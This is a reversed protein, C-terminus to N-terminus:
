KRQVFNWFTSRQVVGTKVEPYYASFSAPIKSKKSKNWQIQYAVLQEQQKEIYDMRQKTHTLWFYSAINLQNSKIHKRRESLVWNKWLQEADNRYEMPQFSRILANRIGNDTFYVVFSKKLEYKQGTTFCPIKFVIEAEEFLQIYREVTENDLGCRQGLDHYSIVEGIEFALLRLLQELSQLKNIRSIGSLNRRLTEELIALVTTEKDTADLVTPYYGFILRQDISQDENQLGFAKACSAYSPLQIELQVSPDNFVTAYDESWHIDFSCVLIINELQEIGLLCEIIDDAAKLLNAELLILKKTDAVLHQLEELNELARRTPTHQCNFYTVGAEEKPFFVECMNQKGVMRPGKLVVVKNEQCMEQFRTTESQLLM